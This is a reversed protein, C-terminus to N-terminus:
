RVDPGVWHVWEFGQILRLIANQEPGGGVLILHFAPMRAKIMRGSEILFPLGKTKDLMGCFIGVPASV